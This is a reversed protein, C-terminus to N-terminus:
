VLAAMTPTLPLEHVPERSMCPWKVPWCKFRRWMLDLVATFDKGNIIAAEGTLYKNVRLQEFIQSAASKGSSPPRMIVPEFERIMKLISEPIRTPLPVEVRLLPQLPMELVDAIYRNEVECHCRIWDGHCFPCVMDSTWDKDNM